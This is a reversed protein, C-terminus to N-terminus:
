AIKIREQIQQILTKKGAKYMNYLYKIQEAKELANKGKPIYGGVAVMRVYRDTVGYAQAVVTATEDLKAPIIITRAKKM